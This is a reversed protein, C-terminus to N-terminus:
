WFIVELVEYDKLIAIFSYPSFNLEQYGDCFHPLLDSAKYSHHLQAFTFIKYTRFFLTPLKPAQATTLKQKPLLSNCPKRSRYSLGDSSSYPSTVFILPLLLWGHDYLYQAYM